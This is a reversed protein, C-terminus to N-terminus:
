CIASPKLGSMTEELQRHLERPDYAQKAPVHLLPLGASAFVSDVLGDRAKREEAEHSKDDLEIGIIPRGDSKQILLFDVHKASIKNRARQRDGRELGAKVGFIDELRVKSTITVDEFDLSTLVGYFSREAPSFLSKRLFYVDDTPKDEGHGGKTKIAKLAILALLAIAFVIAVLLVPSM